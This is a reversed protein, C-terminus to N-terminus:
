DKIVLFKDLTPGQKNAESSSSAKESNKKESDEKKINKKSKRGKNAVPPPPPPPPEVKARKATVLPDYHPHRFLDTPNLPRRKPVEMTEIQELFEVDNGCNGFVEGFRAFAKIYATDEAEKIAMNAAKTRDANTCLATHTAWTLGQHQVDSCWQGSGWKLNAITTLKNPNVKLTPGGDWVGEFFEPGLLEDPEPM